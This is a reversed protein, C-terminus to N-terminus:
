LYEAPIWGQAKIHDVDEQHMANTPTQYGGDPTFKGKQVAITYRMPGQRTGLVLAGLKRLRADGNMESQWPTEHPPVCDLLTLRRWLSAQYSFHYPSHLDSKIIDLYGIKDYETINPAYLRDTCIDFRAVEPNDLMYHYCWRIANADVRRNLWYDDMLFCIVDDTVLSLAKRLDTTWEEVPQFPGISTFKFNEPLDFDPRTNGFVSVEISNLWYRNFLYAFPRLSWSTKDSSYIVARM